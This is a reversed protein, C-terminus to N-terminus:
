KAEKDRVIGNENKIQDILSNFRIICDPCCDMGNKRYRGGVADYLYAIGNIEGFHHPYFVGCIDCQRAEAM